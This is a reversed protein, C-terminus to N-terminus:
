SEGLLTAKQGALAESEKQMKQILKKTNMTATGATLTDVVQDVKATADKMKEGLKEFEPEVKKVQALATLADEQQQDEHKVANMEEESALRAESPIDELGVADIDDRVHKMEVVEAKEENVMGKLAAKAEQIHDTIGQMEEPSLEIALGIACVLLAGFLIRMASTGM